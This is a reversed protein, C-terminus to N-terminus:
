CLNEMLTRYYKSEWYNLFVKKTRRYFWGVIGKFTHDNLGDADQDEAHLLEHWLRNKLTKYSDESRNSVSVGGNCCCGRYNTNLFDGDFIYAVGKACCIPFEGWEIWGYHSAPKIFNPTKGDYCTYTEFSWYDTEKELDALSFDMFFTNSSDYIVRVLKSM